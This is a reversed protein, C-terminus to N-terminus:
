KRADRLRKWRSRQSPNSSNFYLFNNKFMLLLLLLLLLLFCETSYFTVGDFGAVPKRPRSTMEQIGSYRLGALWVCDIHVGEHFSILFRVMSRLFRFRFLHFNRIRSDHGCSCRSPRGVARSLGVPPLIQDSPPGALLPHKGRCGTHRGGWYCGSIWAESRGWRSSARHGLFRWPKWAPRGGAWQPVTSLSPLSRRPFPFTSSEQCISPSGPPPIDTGWRTQELEWFAPGGSVHTQKHPQDM